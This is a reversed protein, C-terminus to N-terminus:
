SIVIFYFDLYGLFCLALSSYVFLLAFYSYYHTDSQGTIWTGMIARGQLLNTIHLKMDGMGDQVIKVKVPGSDSEKGDRIYPRRVATTTQTYNDSEGGWFCMKVSLLM